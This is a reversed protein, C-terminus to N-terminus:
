VHMFSYFCPLMLIFLAPHQKLLFYICEHAFIQPFYIQMDSFKTEMGVIHFVYAQM